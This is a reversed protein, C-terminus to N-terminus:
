AAAVNSRRRSGRLVAGLGGFGVLMMAWTAPEPVGTTLTVRTADLQGSSVGGLGDSISYNSLGFVNVGDVAVSYPTTFSLPITADDHAGVGANIQYLALGNQIYDLQSSLSDAGADTQNNISSEYGAGFDFTSGNITLSATVPGRLSFFSGGVLSNTCQGLVCGSSAIGKATDVMVVLKFPDDGLNGGGFLGLSNDNNTADVVGTYTITAITASASSASALLLAALAVGSILKM